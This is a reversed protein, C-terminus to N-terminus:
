PHTAHKLEIIFCTDSLDRGSSPLAGAQAAPRITGAGNSGWPDVYWLGSPDQQLIYAEQGDRALSQRTPAPATFAMERWIDATRGANGVWARRYPRGRANVGCLWGSDVADPMGATTAGGVRSYVFTM